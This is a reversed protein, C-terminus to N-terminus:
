AMYRLRLCSYVLFILCAPYLLHAFSCFHEPLCSFMMLWWLCCCVAAAGGGGGEGGGLM